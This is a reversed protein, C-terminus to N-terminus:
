SSLAIAVSKLLVEKGALSLLKGKWSVLRKTMKEAIFRLTSSRSRRIVM